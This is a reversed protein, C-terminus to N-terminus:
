ANPHAERILDWLVDMDVDDRRFDNDPTVGVPILIRPKDVSGQYLTPGDKVVITLSPETFLFEHLAFARFPYNDGAQVVQAEGPYLNVAFGPSKELISEQGSICTAYWIDHTGYENRIVNYPM